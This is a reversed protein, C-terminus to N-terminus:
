LCMKKYDSRYGEPLSKQSYGFFPRSKMLFKWKQDVTMQAPLMGDLLFNLMQDYWNNDKFTQVVFICADPLQDSVGVLEEGQEIWSLYDAIAHLTGLTHIITFDFEQLLLMWRALRGTLQPKKLLYLLAQHDVHFVVKNSLLYHQFKRLDYVM